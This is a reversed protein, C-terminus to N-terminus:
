VIKTVKDVIREERFQVGFLLLIVGLLGAVGGGIIAYESLPFPLYAFLFYNLLAGLTFCTLGGSVFFARIRAIKSQARMGGWFFFLVGGIIFLGVLMGNLNQLWLPTGESWLWFAAYEERHAPAFFLINLGVTLSITSVVLIRLAVKLKQLHLLMFAVNLLYYASLFLPIYSITFLVQVITSNPGVAPMAVLLFYIGVYAYAFLFTKIEELSNESYSIVLRRVAIVCLAAGFANFLPLLPIM